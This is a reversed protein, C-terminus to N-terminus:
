EKDKKIFNVYLWTLTFTPIFDSFPFLEELFEIFVAPLVKKKKYMFYLIVASLPAWVIDTIEGFGPFLISLMGILDLIISFIFQSTKNM